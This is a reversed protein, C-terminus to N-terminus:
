LATRCLSRPNQTHAAGPSLFNGDKHDHPVTFHESLMFHTRNSRHRIATLVCCSMCHQLCTTDELVPVSLLIHDACHHLCQCLMSLSRCLCAHHHCRTLSSSAKCAPAQLTAPELGAPPGLGKHTVSHSHQSAQCCYITHAYRSGLLANIVSSKGSNFEGVVVLLFLEDLQKLADTLMSMEQMQPTAQQLLSLLQELLQREAEM